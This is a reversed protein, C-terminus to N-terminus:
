PKAVSDTNGTESRRTEMAIANRLARGVETLTYSYNTHGNIGNTWAIRACLRKGGSTARLMSCFWLEEADDTGLFEEALPGDLRTHKLLARAAGESLGYREPEFGSPGLGTSSPSPERSGSLAGLDQRKDM